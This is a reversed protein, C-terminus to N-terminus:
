GISLGRDLIDVISSEAGNLDRPSSREISGLRGSPYLTGSANEGRGATPSGHGVINVLCNLVAATLGHAGGGIASPGTGEGVNQRLVGVVDGHGFDGATRGSGSEVPAAHALLALFRSEASLSIESGAESYGISTDPIRGPSGVIIAGAGHLASRGGSAGGEEQVVADFGTARNIVERVGVHIDDEAAGIGTGGNWDTEIPVVFDGAAFFLSAYGVCGVANRVHEVASLLDGVVDDAEAFNVLGVSDPGWELRQEYSPAKFERVLRRSCRVAG